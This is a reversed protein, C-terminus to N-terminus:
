GDALKAVAVAFSVQREFHDGFGQPIGLQFKTDGVTLHFINGSCLTSDVTRLDYSLVQPAPAVFLLRRSTVALVSNITGNMWKVGGSCIHRVEETAPLHDRLMSLAALCPGTLEQQVNPPCAAIATDIDTRPRRGAQEAPPAAAMPPAPNTAPAAVHPALNPPPPATGSPQAPIQNGQNAPHGRAPRSYNIGM